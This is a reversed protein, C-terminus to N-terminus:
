WITQFEARFPALSQQLTSKCNSKHSSISLRPVQRPLLKGMFFLGHLIHDVCNKLVTFEHVKLRRDVLVHDHFKTVKDQPMFEYTLVQPAVRTYIIHIHRCVMFGPSKSAPQRRFYVTVDKEDAWVHRSQYPPPTTTTFPITAHKTPEM